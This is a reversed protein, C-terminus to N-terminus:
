FMGWTDDSEVMHQEIAAEIEAVEASHNILLNILKRHPETLAQRIEFRALGEAHGLFIDLLDRTTEPAAVM